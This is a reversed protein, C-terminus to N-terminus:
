LGLSLSWHVKMCSVKRTNKNRITYLIFCFIYMDQTLQTKESRQSNLTYFRYTSIRSQRDNLIPSFSGPDHLECRISSIIMWLIYTVLISCFLQLLFNVEGINWGGETVTVAKPFRSWLNMGAPSCFSGRLPDKFRTYIFIVVSKM